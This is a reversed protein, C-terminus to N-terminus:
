NELCTLVLNLNLYTVIDRLVRTRRHMSCRTDTYICDKRKKKKVVYRERGKVYFNFTKTEGTKISGPTKKKKEKLAM